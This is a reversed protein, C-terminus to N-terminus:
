RWNPDLSDYGAMGTRNTFTNCRSTPTGAATISDGNYFSPQAGTTNEPDNALYFTHHWNNSNSYLDPLDKFNDLDPVDKFSDSLKINSLDKLNECGYWTYALFYNGIFTVQWNSTDPVAAATLSNCGYWTYTLFGEGIFTVGWGSTDPVAATELSKCDYWTFELFNDISAVKWDSTDPVVATVLDTCGEWSSHLFFTGIFTVQWNSTDPVIATVLDTCYRWTNSLFCDGISDVEWGSTDPVTATALNTCGRWTSDLFSDGITKVQWGSTDPVVATVLNTCGEWTSDLFSDGISDVEWGSTDPVTATVLSKCRHWTSFLFFDGISTIEWGSTDPVAAAVLNTCGLWTCALFYDGTSTASQLFGKAPMTIVSTVKAKNAPDSSQDLDSSFGFARAWQFPSTTDHPRITITYTGGAAYSHSIGASATDADSTGTANEEPTADGWNIDWAYDASEGWASYGSTPIIFDSKDAVTVTFSLSEVRQADPNPSDSIGPETLLDRKSIEDV